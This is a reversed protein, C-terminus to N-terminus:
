AMEMDHTVMLTTLNFEARLDEILAMVQEASKRDLAGTPEDMLLLPPRNALAVALAVRQQQGGSLAAPHKHMQDDLGVEQLLARARRRRERPSIGLLMMPLTVNHLASRHGLLNQGVNQWLFGVRALRYRALQRPSLALLDQEDVRLAGATPRDLGGLLNLLSSKGAGSPGVIAVMEGRTMSFDIGRLAVLEHGSVNYAKVIRECRVFPPAESASAPIHAGSDPRNAHPADDRPINAVIDAVNERTQENPVSSM